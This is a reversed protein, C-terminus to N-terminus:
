KDKMRSHFVVDCLELYTMSGADTTLSYENDFADQIFVDGDRYILKKMREDCGDYMTIHPAGPLEVVGGQEKVYAIWSDRLEDCLRYLRHIDMTKSVINKAEGSLNSINLKSM